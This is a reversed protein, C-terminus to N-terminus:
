GDILARRGYNAARTLFALLERQWLYVILLPLALLPLFGLLSEIPLSTLHAGVWNECLLAPARGLVAALVLWRIPVRSIGAAYYVLDSVPLFFILIWTYPSRVRLREEWYNMRSAGIWRQIAPRGLWRALLATSVAGLAIGALSYVTGWLAGFLYGGALTIPQGPIPAVVIQLVYLAVYIVPALLGFGSVYNMVGQRESMLQVIPSRAVWLAGVLALALLLLWFRRRAYIRAYLHPM